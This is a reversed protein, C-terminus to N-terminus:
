KISRSATGCEDNSLGAEKYMKIMQATRPLLDGADSALKPNSASRTVNVRHLLNHIANTSCHFSLFHGRLLVVVNHSVVSFIENKNIGSIAYWDATSSIQLNEVDNFDEIIVHARKDIIDDATGVMGAKLWNSRITEHIAIEKAFRALACDRAQDPRGKPIKECLTIAKLGNNKALERGEPGSSSAAIAALSAASAQTEIDWLGDVAGEAKKAIELMATENSARAIAEEPTPNIYARTVLLSPVLQNYQNKAEDFETAACGSLLLGAVLALISIRPFKM